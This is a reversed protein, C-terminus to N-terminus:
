IGLLELKKNRRLSKAMNDDKNEECYDCLIKIKAFHNNDYQEIQSILIGKLNILKIDSVIMGDLKTCYKPFEFLNMLIPLDSVSLEFDFSFSLFRDISSNCEMNLSHIHFTEIQRNEKEILIMDINM